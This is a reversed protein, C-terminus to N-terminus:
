FDDNTRCSALDHAFHGPADKSFFCRALDIENQYLGFRERYVQRLINENEESSVLDKDGEFWFLQPPVVFHMKLDPRLKASNFRQMVKENHRGVSDIDVHLFRLGAFSALHTAGHLYAHLQQQTVNYYRLQHLLLEDCGFGHAMYHARIIMKVLSNFKPYDLLMDKLDYKFCLPDAEAAPPKPEHCYCFWRQLLPMVTAVDFKPRQETLFNLLDKRWLSM